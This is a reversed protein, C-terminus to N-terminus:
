GAVGRLGFASRQVIEAAYRKTGTRAAPAAPASQPRLSRMGAICGVVTRNEKLVKDKPTGRAVNSLATSTQVAWVPYM